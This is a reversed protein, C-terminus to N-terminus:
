VIFKFIMVLIVSGWLEAKGWALRQEVFEFCADADLHLFSSNTQPRWFANETPAGSRVRQPLEHREWAGLRSSLPCGEMGMGWVM